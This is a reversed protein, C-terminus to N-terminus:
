KKLHFIIYLWYKTLSKGSLLSKEMVPLNLFFKPKDKFAQNPYVIHLVKIKLPMKVTLGFVSGEGVNPCDVSIRM